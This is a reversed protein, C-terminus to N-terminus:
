QNSIGASQPASRASVFLPGSSLVNLDSLPWAQVSRQRQNQKAAISICFQVFSIELRPGVTVRYVVRPSRTGAIRVFNCLSIRQGHMGATSPSCLSLCRFPRNHVLVLISASRM